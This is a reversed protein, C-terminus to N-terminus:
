VYYVTPQFLTPYIQTSHFLSPDRSWSSSFPVHSRLDWWWNVVVAICCIHVATPPPLMSTKLSVTTTFTSHHMNLTETKTKTKKAFLLEVEWELSIVFVVAYKVTVGSTHSPFSFLVHEPRWCPTLPDARGTEGGWGPEETGGSEAARDCVLGQHPGGCPEPPAGSSWKWWRWVSQRKVHQKWGNRQRLLNRRWSRSSLFFM